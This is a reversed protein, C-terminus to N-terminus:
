SGEPELNREIFRQIRHKPVGFKRLYAEPGGYESELKALVLEILHGQAPERVVRSESQTPDDGGDEILLPAAAASADGSMVYDAIIDADSVGLLKLLLAAYVGSRDKGLRCHFLTGGEEDAMANFGRAFARGMRDLVQPLQVEAPLKRYAAIGEPTWIVHKRPRYAVRRGPLRGLPGSDMQQGRLDFVLTIGLGRARAVDADTMYQPTMSRFLRRWRVKREDRGRYGGIDRFNFCREFEISRPPASTEATV